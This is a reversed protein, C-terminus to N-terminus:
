AMGPMLPAQDGKAVQKSYTSQTPSMGGYQNSNADDDDDEAGDDGDDDQDDDANDDDEDDILDRPDIEGFIFSLLRLLLQAASM